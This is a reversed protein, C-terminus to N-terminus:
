LLRHCTTCIRFNVEVTSSSSNNDIGLSTVEEPFEVEEPNETDCDMLPDETGSVEIFCDSYPVRCDFTVVKPHSCETNDM